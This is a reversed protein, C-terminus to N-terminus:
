NEEEDAESEKYNRVWSWFTLINLASIIVFLGATDYKGLFVAMIAILAVGIGIMIHIGLLIKMRIERKM